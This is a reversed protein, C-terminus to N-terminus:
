DLKFDFVRRSEVQRGPPTFRWREMANIAERDFTNGPRSSLVRVNAVSGDPMITFGLEVSGEVRRRLANPPYRPQVASVVTPTVTAPVVPPPPPAPAPAVPPPATTVPAAPTTPEPEPVSAVPAPAPEPTAVPAPPPAAAAAAAAEAAAQAAALRQAEATAARQAEATVRNRLESVGRQLRALAPAKENAREMLDLMRESEPLDGAATRQEVYLVAYPFLDTLANRATIQEPELENVRLYMEFASEGAPVFLQNEKMAQDARTLLEEASLTDVLTPSVVVSEDEAPAPAPEPAAPPPAAPASAAPPPAPPAEEKGGCASLILAAAALAVIGLRRGHRMSFSMEM